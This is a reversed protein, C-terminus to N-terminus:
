HESWQHVLCPRLESLVMHKYRTANPFNEVSECLNLASNFARLAHEWEARQVHQQGQGMFIEWSRIADAISALTAPTVGAPDRLQKFSEADKPGLVGTDKEFGRYADFFVLTAHLTDPSVETTHFTAEPISYSMDRTHAASDTPTARVLRETNVVISYTQHTKFTASLNKGDNWALAYEAHTAVLPDAVPEVKYAHDIGEGALIWSQIFSQHSHIAFEPNGRKGDPLWVHLRFLEDLLGDKVLSCLAVAMFGQASRSTSCLPRTLLTSTLAGHILGWVIALDAATVAAVSAGQAQRSKERLFAVGLALSALQRSEEEEEPLDSAIAARWDCLSLAVTTDNYDHDYIDSDSANNRCPVKRSSIWQVVLKMDDDPTKTAVAVGQLVRLLALRSIKCEDNDGSSSDASLSNSAAAATGDNYDAFPPWPRTINTTTM